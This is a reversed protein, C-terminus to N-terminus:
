GTLQEQKPRCSEVADELSPFMPIVKNLRIIHFAQEIQGKVGACLITGGLNQLDNQTNILLGIFYSDVMQCASLDFIINYSNNLFAVTLIQRIKDILSETLNTEDIVIIFCDEREEHWIAMPTEEIENLSM